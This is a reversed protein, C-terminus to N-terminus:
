YSNVLHTMGLLYCLLKWRAPRPLQSAFPLIGADILPRLKDALAQVRSVTGAAPVFGRRFWHNVTAPTRAVLLCLFRQSLRAEQLVLLAKAFQEADRKVCPRGADAM